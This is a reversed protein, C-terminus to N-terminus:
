RVTRSVGIRDQEICAADPLMCLVFDVTSEAANSVFFPPSGLFDDANETTHSLLILSQNKLTCGIDIQDDTWDETSVGGTSEPLVLTVLVDGLMVEGTDGPAAGFPLTLMTRDELQEFDLRRRISEAMDNRASGVSHRRTLMRSIRALM